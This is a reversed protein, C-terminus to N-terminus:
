CARRLLAALGILATGVLMITVEDSVTVQSMLAVRSAGPSVTYPARAADLTTVGDHVVVGRKGGILFGVNRVKRSAGPAVFGAAVRAAVLHQGRHLLVFRGSTTSSSTIIGPRSPSAVSRASFVARGSACTMMSDPRLWAEVM